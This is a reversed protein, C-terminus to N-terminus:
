STSSIAIDSLWGGGDSERLMIVVGVIVSEGFGGGGGGGSLVFGQDRTKGVIVEPLGVRRDCFTASSGGVIVVPCPVNILEVDMLALVRWLVPRRDEGGEVRGVPREFEVWFVAVARDEVARLALRRKLRLRCFDGRECGADDAAVRAVDM